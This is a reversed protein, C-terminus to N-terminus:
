WTLKNTFVQYKEHITCFIYSTRIGYYPINVLIGYSSYFLGSFTSHDSQSHHVIISLLFNMLCFINISRFTLVHITSIIINWWTFNWLGIRTNSPEKQVEITERMVDLCLNENSRFVYHCTKPWPFFFFSWLPLHGGHRIHMHFILSKDNIIRGWNVYVFIRIQCQFPFSSPWPWHCINRDITSMM